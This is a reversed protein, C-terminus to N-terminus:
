ERRYVARVIAGAVRERRRHYRGIARALGRRDDAEIADIWTDFEADDAGLVDGEVGRVVHLRANLRDVAGAHECNGSRQALVAFFRGTAQATTQAPAEGDASKGNANISEAFPIAAAGAPWHTVCLRLLQESWRYLDHLLPEDLPPLHFGGGQRAEVLGEGTLRNLADRVPTISSAFQGAIAGPDLRDGPRWAADLIQGRLAELVREATAGPNM